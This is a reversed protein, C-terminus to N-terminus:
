GFCGMLVVVWVTIIGLLAGAAVQLLTHRRLYIRVYCVIIILPILLIAAWLGFVMGSILAASVISTAHISILWFRTIIALAALVIFSFLALCRLLEPGSFGVILALAIAAGAVSALYPIHRERTSSMHLDSIRGTKLMYVVVLIPALSVWFGFLAAWLFGEVSPLEELSLALGLVAFIVPPSVM